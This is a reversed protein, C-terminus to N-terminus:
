LKDRSCPSGGFETTLETSLISCSCIKWSRRGHEYIKLTQYLPFLHLLFFPLFSTLLRCLFPLQQYFCGFQSIVKEGTGVGEEVGAVWRWAEGKCDDVWRKEEAWGRAM